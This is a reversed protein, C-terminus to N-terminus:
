AGIGEIEVLMTPVQQQKCRRKHAGFTMRSKFFCQKDCHPCRCMIGDARTNSSRTRIESTASMAQEVEDLACGGPIAHVEQGIRAARLEQLSAM